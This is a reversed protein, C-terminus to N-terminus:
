SCITANITGVRTPIVTLNLTVVSDCGNIATFTDLYAGTTNRNVGNFSYTQNRVFQQM